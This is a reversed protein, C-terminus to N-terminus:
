RAWSKKADEISSSLYGGFPTVDRRKVKIAHELGHLGYIKQFSIVDVILQGSPSWKTVVQHGSPSWKPVVQHGSPSWKTVVQVLHSPSWWM